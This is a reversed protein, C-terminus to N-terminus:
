HNNAIIAILQLVVEAVILYIVIWELKVAHANELQQQLVDLLEKLMDLRMNLIETRTEMELYEMVLRYHEYFKETSENWFFDPTDLIETHLNVDHRIVFVEGIMMGLQRATLHVSGYAALTTPIYKYEEVKQEVRSEFIALVSSQAIAFSVSLRDKSETEDPLTIVDNAISITSADSSMVFAMDDEGSQYEEVGVFGKTVFMRITKLLNTEEGRTFGWFVAAGFDFCFVEQAGNVALRFPKEGDSYTGTGGNPNNKSNSFVAPHEETFSSDTRTDFYVSDRVRVAADEITASDEIGPKYLHLVDNYLQYKWGHLMNGVSSVLHDFLKQLDIDSSVCCFYVRRKKRKAQFEGGRTRTALKKRQRGTRVLKGHHQSDNGFDNSQSRLRVHHHDKDDDTYNEDYDGLAHYQYKESGLLKESDSYYNKSM